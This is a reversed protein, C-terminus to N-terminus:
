SKNARVRHIVPPSLGHLHVLASAVQISWDLATANDYLFKWPAVLQKHMLSGLSGGELLELVLAWTPRVYGRALGPFNHPLELVALCRVIHSLATTM